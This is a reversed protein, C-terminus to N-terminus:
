VKVPVMRGDFLLDLPEGLRAKGLHLAKPFALSAGHEAAELSFGAFLRLRPKKLAALPYHLNEIRAGRRKFGQTACIYSGDVTTRHCGVWTM